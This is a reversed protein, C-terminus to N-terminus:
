ICLSDSKTHQMAAHPRSICGGVKHVFLARDRTNALDALEKLVRHQMPKGSVGCENSRVLREWEQLFHFYCLLYGTADGTLVLQRIAAMEQRSKDIMIYGYKFGPKGGARAQLPHTPPHTSHRPQHANLPLSGMGRGMLGAHKSGSSSGEPSTM